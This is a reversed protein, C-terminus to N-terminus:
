EPGTEVVQQPMVRIHNEVAKVGPTNEAVVRVADREADSAATGWLSAVGSRVTVDILQARVGAEEAATALIQSRIQSDSLESSPLGGMALCRLLNARSVIGIVRGDRTVPVRKIGHSELLTAIRDVAEDEGVSTVNPTMVDGAKLGHARVYSKAQQESPAAGKLWWSRRETMLEARRMLDGETLMGVLRGAADLVPLGSIRNELMLRVADAIAADAPVTVVNRTMIDKARM